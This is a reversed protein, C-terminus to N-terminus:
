LLNNDPAPIWTSRPPVRNKPTTVESPSIFPLLPVDSIGHSAVLIYLIIKLRLCVFIFFYVTIANPKNIIAPKVPPQLFSLVELLSDADILSLVQHPVSVSM